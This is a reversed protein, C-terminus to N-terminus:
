VVVCGGLLWRCHESGSGFAWRGRVRYGGDVVAAEGRPAFVGGTVVFPDGFIERAVDPPLYGSVLGSTAGIMVVWGASGDARAVEEIVDLLTAVDAEVGGQAHPICLRFAGAEALGQILDLPVRRGQEIEEARARIAPALARVAALPSPAATAARHVSM